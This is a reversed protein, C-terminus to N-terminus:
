CGEHSVKEPPFPGRELKRHVFSEEAESLDEGLYFRLGEGYNEMSDLPRELVLERLGVDEGTWGFGAKYMAEYAYPNNVSVRVAPYRELVREALYDALLPGIGEGRVDRRVTIYRVRAAPSGRDENFCAAAVISGEREAVAKGTEPTRFKGAYGFEEHPLIITPSDEPWGHFEYEM